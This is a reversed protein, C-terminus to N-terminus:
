YETKTSITKNMAMSNVPPIIAEKFNSVKEVQYVIEESQVAVENKM